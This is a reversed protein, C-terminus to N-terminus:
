FKTLLTSPHIERYRGDVLLISALGLMVTYYTFLSVNDDVNNM